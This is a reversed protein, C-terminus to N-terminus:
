SSPVKGDHLWGLEVLRGCKVTGKVPGLHKALAALARLKDLRKIIVRRTSPVGDAGNEIIEAELVVLTNLVDPSCRTLDIVPEGCPSISLFDGMGGFAIGSLEALVKAIDVKAREAGEEVLEAM